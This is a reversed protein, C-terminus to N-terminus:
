IGDKGAMILSSYTSSMYMATLSPFENEGSCLVRRACGGFGVEFANGIM